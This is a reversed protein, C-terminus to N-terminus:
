ENSWVITGMQEVAMVAPEPLVNMAAQTATYEPCICYNHLTLTMYGVKGASGYWGFVIHVPQAWCWNVKVISMWKVTREHSQGWWRFWETMPQGLSGRCKWFPTMDQIWAIKSTCSFFYSCPCNGACQTGSKMDIFIKCDSGSWNLLEESCHGASSPQVSCCNFSM